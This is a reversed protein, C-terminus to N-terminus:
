QCFNLKTMGHQYAFNILEAINALNLKYMINSRHVSITRESNNLTNAVEKNSLGLVLLEIVQLEKPTLTNSYDNMSVLLSNSVFSQNDSVSALAALYQESSDTKLCIGQITKNDLLPILNYFSDITTMVIIKLRSNHRKLNEINESINTLLFQHDIFLVDITRVRLTNQLRSFNEATANVRFGHAEFVCQLGIRLLEQQEAIVINIM